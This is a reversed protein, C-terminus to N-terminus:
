KKLSWDYTVGTLEESISWLRPGTTADQAAAGVKAPAPAGKFELFGNPGYYGGPQAEPETAAYLQPLAGEANSHGLIQFALNTIIKAPAPLDRVISTASLGPHAGISVLRSGHQESQRELEQAYVLLALKTQGYSKMPAYGQEMQLDGFHIKSRKHANSSLSVVRPASARLLVPLLRGTLAFHGLYNTALQLEFGDVSTQRQPVAMIGANNVLMDVPEGAELVTDAFTRVSDLSSTDLHAVFVQAAPQEAQITKVAAQGREISRCALVVQAGARALERATQYGLGANGGTVIARKGQQSPIQKATWDQAM